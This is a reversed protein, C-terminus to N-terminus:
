YVLIDNIGMAELQSRIEDAHDKNAIVVCANQCIKALENPPYVKRGEIVSGWLEKKNDSFGVIRERMGELLESLAKGKVGCGFVFIREKCTIARLFNGLKKEANESESASEEIKQLVNDPPCKMLLGAEKTYGEEYYKQIEGKDKKLEVLYRDFLEQRYQGRLNCMNGFFDRYKWEYAYHWIYSDTLNRKRLQAQLFDHEDAIITTKKGDHMSSGPNDIRYLYVPEDIHYSSYALISTLFRFSMDQFSAGPSENMRIAERILFEKRFLGTWFRPIIGMEKPNKKNYQVFGYQNDPYMKTVYRFRVGNVTYFCTYNGNVFDVKYQEAIRYLCELMFLEFMDDSELVAIYTGMAEEIGRNVKHGYSTNGDNIIRIRGDAKAYRQLIQPTKDTSGGDICLIEIDSFTQRIVSNICEEIYQEANHITLIVSIKPAKNKM